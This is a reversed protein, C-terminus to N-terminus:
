EVDQVLRVSCGDLPYCYNRLGDSQIEILGYKSYKSDESGEENLCLYYGRGNGHGRVYTYVIHGEESSISLYGASPLFVVGKKEYRMFEDLSFTNKYGYGAWGRYYPKGSTFPFNEDDSFNWNDPLLFLGEQNNVIGYGWLDDANEREHLLYNWEKESLIRWEEKYINNFKYELHQWSFLDIYGNYTKNNRNKNREGVVYSQNKAFDWTQSGVNYRLNGLTFRVKKTASVSFKGSLREDPVSSSSCGLFGILVIAVLSKIRM